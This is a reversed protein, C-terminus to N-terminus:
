IFLYIPDLDGLPSPLKSPPFPRVMTFCLSVRRDDTRFRSFRNRHRKLKPSPHGLFRTLHPGGHSPTIKPFLLARQLTYRIKGHATFFRSIRDIQRKPQPSPHASPHEPENTNALHRWDARLCEETLQAFITSGISKGNPNPSSQVSPHVLDIM